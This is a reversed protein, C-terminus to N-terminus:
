QEDNSALNLIYNRLQKSLRFNTSKDLQEIMAPLDVLNRKAAGVLVSLTGACEIGLAEAGLRGRRDDILLVVSPLELALSIAEREGADITPLSQITTPSEVDLWDPRNEIWARVLPPASDHTLESVVTPVTVVEGFMKPLCDVAGILILFHLPSADSVVIM